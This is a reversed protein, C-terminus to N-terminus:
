EPAATGLIGIGSEPAAFEEGGGPAAAGPRNAVRNGAVLSQYVLETLGYGKGKALTKAQEADLMEQFFKEGNDGHMAPNEHVTARMSKMVQNMFVAVFEEAVGRVKTELDKEGQVSRGKRIAEARGAAQDERDKGFVAGMAGPNIKDYAAVADLM